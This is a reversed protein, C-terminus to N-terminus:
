ARRRRDILSVGVAREVFAFAHCWPCAVLCTDPLGIVREIREVDDDDTIREVM